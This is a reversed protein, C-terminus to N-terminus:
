RVGYGGTHLLVDMEPFKTISEINTVAINKKQLFQATGGTSIINVNFKKLKKAISEIENKNSVSILANNIKINPM